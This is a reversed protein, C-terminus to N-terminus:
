QKKSGDTQACLNPVFAFKFAARFSWGPNLKEYLREYEEPTYGGEAKASQVSIVGENKAELWSDLIVIRGRSIGKATRKPQIAYSHGCQYREIASAKRRTETKAGEIIKQPHDNVGFIM